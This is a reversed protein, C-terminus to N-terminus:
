YGHKFVEPVEMEMTNWLVLVICALITLDSSWRSCQLSTWYGCLIQM